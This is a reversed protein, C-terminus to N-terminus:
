PSHSVSVLPRVKCKICSMTAETPVNNELM